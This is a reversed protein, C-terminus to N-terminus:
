MADGGELRGAEEMCLEDLRKLFCSIFPPLLLKNGSIWWLLDPLAKGMTDYQISILLLAQRDDVIKSLEILNECVSIVNVGDGCTDLVQDFFLGAHVQAVAQVLATNVTNDPNLLGMHRHREVAANDFPSILSNAM